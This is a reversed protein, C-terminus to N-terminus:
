TSYGALSRRLRHSEGPWFVPTPQWARRWPIKGVWPSIGHRKLRRCQYAHEKGTADGQFVAMHLQSEIRHCHPNAMAGQGERQNKM